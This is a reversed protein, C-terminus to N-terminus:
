RSYDKNLLRNIADHAIAKDTTPQVWEAKSYSYAKQTAMLFNIYEIATYKPPNM